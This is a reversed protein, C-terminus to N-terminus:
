VPEWTVSGDANRTPTLPRTPEGIFNFPSAPQSVITGDGGRERVIREAITIPNTMGHRLKMIADLWERDTAGEGLSRAAAAFADDDTVIEVAKIRPKGFWEVTARWM